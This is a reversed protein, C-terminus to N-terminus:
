DPTNHTERPLSCALTLPSRPVLNSPFILPFYISLGISLPRHLRLTRFTGTSPWCCRRHHRWAPHRNVQSPCTRSKPSLDIALLRGQRRQRPLRLRLPAQLHNTQPVDHHFTSHQPKPYDAQPSHVLLQTPITTPRYTQLSPLIDDLTTNRKHIPFLLFNTLSTTDVNVSCCCHVSLNGM